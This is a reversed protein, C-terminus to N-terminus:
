ETTIIIIYYTLTKKNVIIVVFLIIIILDYIILKLFLEIKNMMSVTIININIMKFIVIVM